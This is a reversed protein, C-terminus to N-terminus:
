QHATLQVLPQVLSQSALLALQLAARGHLLLSAM